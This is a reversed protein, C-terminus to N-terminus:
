LCIAQNWKEKEKKNCHNKKTRTNKKKSRKNVHQIKNICFSCKIFKHQTKLIYYVYWYSFVYCCWVRGAHIHVWPCFVYSLSLSRQKIVINPRWNRRRRIECIDIVNLSCIKISHQWKLSWFDRKVFSLCGNFFFFWSRM